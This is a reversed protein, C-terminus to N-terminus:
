KSIRARIQRLRALPKVSIARVCLFVRQLRFASSRNPPDRWRRDPIAGFRLEASWQDADSRTM